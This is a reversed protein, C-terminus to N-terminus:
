MGNIISRGELSRFMNIFMCMYLKVNGIIAYSVFIVKILLVILIEYCTTHVFSAVHGMVHKLLLLNRITIIVLFYYVFDTQFYEIDM